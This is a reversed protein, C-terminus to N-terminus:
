AGFYISNVDGARRAKAASAAEERVAERSRSVVIARSQGDRQQQVATGNAFAEAEAQRVEARTATSNFGADPAVFETQQASATGAAAFIIAASIMKVTKMNKELAVILPIFRLQEQGANDKMYALLKQENTGLIPAFATCM